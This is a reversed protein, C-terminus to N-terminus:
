IANEKELWITEGPHHEAIDHLADEIKDPAKIDIEKNLITLNANAAWHSVIEVKTLINGAIWFSNQSETFKNKLDSYGHRTIILYVL